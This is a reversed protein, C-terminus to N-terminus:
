YSLCFLDYNYYLHDYDSYRYVRLRINKADIRKFFEDSASGYTYIHMNYNILVLVFNDIM